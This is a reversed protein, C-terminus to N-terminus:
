QDSTVANAAQTRHGDPTQEIGGKEVCHISIYYMNGHLNTVQEHRKMVTVNEHNPEVNSTM